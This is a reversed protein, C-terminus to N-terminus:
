DASSLRENTEDLPALYTCVYKYVFYDFLLALFICDSKIM